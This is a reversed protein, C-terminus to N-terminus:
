IICSIPVGFLYPVVFYQVANITYSFILHHTQYETIIRLICFSTVSIFFIITQNKNFWLQKLIALYFLAYSVLSSILGIAGYLIIHSDVYNCFSVFVSSKVAIEFYNGGFIKVAFCVLLLSWCIFITRRIVVAKYNESTTVSKLM